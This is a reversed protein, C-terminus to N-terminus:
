DRCCSKFIHHPCLGWHRIYLNHFRVCSYTGKPHCKLCFDNLNWNTGHGTCANIIVLHRIFVTHLTNIIALHRIFLTHLVFDRPLHKLCIYLDEIEKVVFTLYMCFVVLRYPNGGVVEIYKACHLQTTAKM